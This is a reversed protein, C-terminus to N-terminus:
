CIIIGDGGFSEIFESKIMSYIIILMYLIVEFYLETDEFM